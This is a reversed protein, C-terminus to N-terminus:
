QDISANNYTEHQWTYKLATPDEKLSEEYAKSQRDYGNNRLKVRHKLIRKEKPTM